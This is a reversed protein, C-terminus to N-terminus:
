PTGGGFFITQVSRGRWDVMRAYFNLERILAETYTTEPIEPVVHSNFDCYPCKKICYPIHVYISFPEEATQM